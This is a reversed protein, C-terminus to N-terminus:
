VLEDLFIDASTIGRKIDFYDPEGLVNGDQTLVRVKAMDRFNDDGLDQLTKILENITM